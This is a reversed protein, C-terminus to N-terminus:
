FNWPKIFRDACYARAERKGIFNVVEYPVTDGVARFVQLEVKRPKGFYGDHSDIVIAKQSRKYLYAIM